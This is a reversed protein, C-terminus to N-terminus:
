VDIRKGVRKCSWSISSNKLGVLRESEVLFRLKPKEDKM